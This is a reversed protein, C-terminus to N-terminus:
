KFSEDTKHTIMFQEVRPNNEGGETSALFNKQTQHKPDKPPTLTPVGQYTREAHRIKKKQVPHQQKRKDPWGEFNVTLSQKEIDGLRGNPLIM